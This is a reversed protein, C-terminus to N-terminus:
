FSNPDSSPPWEGSEHWGVVTSGRDAVLAVGFIRITNSNPEVPVYFVVEGTDKGQSSYSQGPALSDAYWHSAFTSYEQEWARNGNAPLAIYRNGDITVISYDAVPENPTWQGAMPEPVLLRINEISADLDVSSTNTVSLQVIVQGQNRPGACMCNKTVALNALDVVPPSDAPSPLFPQPTSASVDETVSPSSPPEEATVSISERPVAFWVIAVLTAITMFSLIGFGIRGEFNSGSWIRFACMFGLWYLTAIGMAMTAYVAITLSFTTTFAAFITTITSVWGLILVAVSIHFVKRDGDTM